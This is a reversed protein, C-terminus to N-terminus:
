LGRQRAWEMAASHVSSALNYSRINQSQPFGVRPCDLDHWSDPLGGTESGFCLHTVESLDVNWPRAQSRTTFLVPRARALADRYREGDPELTLEVHRWYDLGARRLQKEALSFGLQGVLVLPLGLGVCTRAINGTNPAICPEYLVVHVTAAM